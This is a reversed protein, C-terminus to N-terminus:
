RDTVVYLLRFGTVPLMQFIIWCYCDQITRLGYYSSLEASLSKFLATLRGMLRLNSTGTDAPFDALFWYSSLTDHHPFGHVLLFCFEHVNGLNEYRPGRRLPQLSALSIM